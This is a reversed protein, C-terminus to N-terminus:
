FRAKTAIKKMRWKTTALVSCCQRESLLLTMAWCGSVSCCQQLMGSTLFAILVQDYADDLMFM